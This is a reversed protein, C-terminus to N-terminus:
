WSICEAPCYKMAEEVCEEPYQPLDSVEIYGAANMVFVQPCVELCAECGTCRSLDISPTRAM